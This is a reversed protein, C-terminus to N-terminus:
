REMNCATFSVTKSTGHAMFTENDYSKFNHEGHKEEITEVNKHWKLM